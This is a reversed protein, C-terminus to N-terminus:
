LSAVAEDDVDPLLKLQVNLGEVGEDEFEACLDSVVLVAVVVAAAVGVLVVVEVVEVVVVKLLSVWHALIIKECKKNKNKKNLYVV